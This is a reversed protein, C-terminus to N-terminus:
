IEIEDGRESAAVTSPSFFAPFGTVWHINLSKSWLSASHSLQLPLSPLVSHPRPFPLHFRSSANSAERPKHQQCTIHDRRHRREQSSSGGGSRGCLIMPAARARTVGVRRGACAERILTRVSDPVWRTKGGGGCSGAFLALAPRQLQHAQSRSSLIGRCQRLM